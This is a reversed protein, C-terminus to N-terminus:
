LVTGMMNTTYRTLGEASLTFYENYNVEDAALVQLDYLCKTGLKSDQSYGLYLFKLSNKNLELWELM